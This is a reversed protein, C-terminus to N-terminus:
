MESFDGNRSFLGVLSSPATTEFYPEIELILSHELIPSYSLPSFRPAGVKGLPQQPRTPTGGEGPSMALCHPLRDEKGPPHYGRKTPPPIAGERLSFGIPNIQPLLSGTYATALSAHRWNIQYGRQCAPINGSLPKPFLGPTRM